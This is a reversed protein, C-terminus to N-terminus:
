LAKHYQISILYQKYKEFIIKAVRLIVRDRYKMKMESENLYNDIFIDSMMALKMPKGVINLMVYIASPAYSLRSSDTGIVKEVIINIGKNKNLRNVAERIIDEAAINTFEM